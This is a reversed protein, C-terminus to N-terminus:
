LETCVGVSVSLPIKVDIIAEIQDHIYSTHFWGNPAFAFSKNEKCEVRELKKTVPNTDDDYKPYTTWHEHCDLGSMDDISWDYTFEKIKYCGYRFHYPEGDWYWSSYIDYSRNQSSSCSYPYLEADVKKVLYKDTALVPFDVSKWNNIVWEFGTSKEVVCLSSFYDDVDSVAKAPGICCIFLLSAITIKRM